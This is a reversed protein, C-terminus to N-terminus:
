GYKEGCLVSLGCLVANLIDIIECIVCILNKKLAAAGFFFWDTFDAYDNIEKLSYQTTFLSKIYSM